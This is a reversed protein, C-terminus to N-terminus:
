NMRFRVTKLLKGDSDLVEVRWDGTWGREIGKKSFTRWKKGKVPLRYEGVKEDGRYWAHTIFTDTEESGETRTFCYLASVASSSIRHVADIPNGRAIKTTVALETIKLRPAEARAATAAGSLVIIAALLLRHLPHM